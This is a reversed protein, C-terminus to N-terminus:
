LANEISLIRIAEKFKAKRVARIATEDSSNFYGLKILRPIMGRFGAREWIINNEAKAKQIAKEEHKDKAIAVPPDFFYRNAKNM